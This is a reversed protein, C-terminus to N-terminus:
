IKIGLAEIADLAAFAKQKRTLVIEVSPSPLSPLILTTAPKEIRQLAAPPPLTRLKRIVDKPVCTRKGNIYVVWECDLRPGIEPWLKLNTHLYFGKKELRDRLALQTKFHEDMDYCTYKTLAVYREALVKIFSNQGGIYRYNRRFWQSGRMIVPRADTQPVYERPFVEQNLAVDRGSFSGHRKKTYTIARVIPASPCIFYPRLFNCWYQMYDDDHFIRKPPNRWLWRRSDSM